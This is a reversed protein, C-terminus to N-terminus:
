RQDPSMPSDNAEQAAAIIPRQTTPHRRSTYSHQTTWYSGLVDTAIPAYRWLGWCPKAKSAHAIDSHSLLMKLRYAIRPDVHRSGCRLFSSSIHPTCPLTIPFTCNGSLVARCVTGSGVASVEPVGAGSVDVGAGGTAVGGGSVGAGMALGGGASVGAGVGGGTAVGAATGGGAAVGAATGGGTSVGVETGGGAAVGAATGGGASVGAGTGGGVSVGAATEGGTSVGAM